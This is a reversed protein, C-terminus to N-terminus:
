LTIEFKMHGCDYLKYLGIGRALDDETADSPIDKNMETYIEILRQKTYNFRHKRQWNTRNGVYYYNPRTNEIFTFGMKEYVNGNGWRLDCFTRVKINKYEERFTSFLKNAGGVVTVDLINCFRNLEYDYDNGHKSISPLSFSMASVLENNHFLGYAVSSQGKGQIHNKEFFDLATKNDIKMCSCKRAYIVENLSLISCLRSKCIDQKLVWEDEFITILRIGNQKCIEHKKAHYNKDEKYKTSHWILGCYEIGLKIDPLYIDIEIGYTKDESIIEKDYNSRLWNEIEMQTKRKTSKFCQPCKLSNEDTNFRIWIESFTTGCTNCKFYMPTTADVYPSDEIPYINSERCKFVLKDYVSNRKRIIECNNCSNRGDELNTPYCEKIGGCLRCRFVAKNHTNTYSLVNWKHLHKQIMPPLGTTIGDVPLSLQSIKNLLIRDMRNNFETDDIINNEIIFTKNKCEPCVFPTQNKEWNSLVKVEQKYGDNKCIFTISGYWRSYGDQKPEFDLNYKNAYDEVFSRPIYSTKRDMCQPCKDVERGLNKIQNVSLKYSHGEPCIIEIKTNNTYNSLDTPEVYKVSEFYHKHDNFSPKPRPM